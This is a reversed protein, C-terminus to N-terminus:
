ALPEVVPQRGDAALHSPSVSRAAALVPVILLWTVVTGFGVVGIGFAAGAALAIRRMSGGAQRVRSLGAVLAVILVAFHHFWTVPLVVLSAALAWAFSTLPDDVYVAAVVVGTVAAIDIILQMPAVASAGLGVRM